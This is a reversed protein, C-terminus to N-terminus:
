QQLLVADLISVLVNGAETADRSGPDKIGVASDFCTESEVRLIPSVAVGIAM